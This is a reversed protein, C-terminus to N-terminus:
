VSYVTVVISLIRFHLTCALYLMISDKNNVWEINRMGPVVNSMSTGNVYLRGSVAVPSTKVPRLMSSSWAATKSIASSRRLLNTYYLVIHNLLIHIQILLLYLISFTDKCINSLLM